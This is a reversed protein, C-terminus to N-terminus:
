KHHLHRRHAPRPEHNRRANLEPYHRLGLIAFRAVLSIVSVPREPQRSNLEARAALLGTADADVWVTAEPIERRSRTLKDATAKRTGRLPIRRVVDDASGPGAGPPVWIAAATPTRQQIAQEVDRRLVLGSPGSGTIAALDLGADRALKRVLPSIVAIRDPPGGPLPDSRNAQSSAPREGPARHRSAQIGYGVLVNGGPETEAQDAPPQATVTAPEGFGDPPGASQGADALSILPQGVALTRGPEGHLATVVGAFPAPIEVAAKATEVEAVIQDVTVTDGIKVHWAIIEAETLGEGLDPLHFERM